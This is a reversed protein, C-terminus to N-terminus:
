YWCKMDRHERDPNAHDKCVGHWSGTRGPTGLNLDPLVAPIHDPIWEMMAAPKFCRWCEGNYRFSVFSITMGEM